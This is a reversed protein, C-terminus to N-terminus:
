RMVADPDTVAARWVPVLTAATYPLVTFLLLTALHLGDVQPVLEFRPYLVAWGKLVPAFLPSGLHFVHGYAALYGIVFASLSVLGGEWLKMTLVDGTEWGVAKLIGIERREEASLGSAKDWALIAFALVAGVLTLLMIGERWTFVSDYTRLIEDRLIPRADPLAAVVKQAVTRTERPNRVTMVADTYVGEPLAFFRRYDAEGVLMLDASVLQSASPLVGAITFSFLSGDAGRLALVDGVGAGRAAAIGAGIRISGPAPPDAPPVMVTYNAAVTPDFHYGWLRGSVERAGRIAQLKALSTVPLLDHRGAVMRQVVVEPSNRLVTAAERRLADTFLMVSALLFVVAAYVTLLGVTKAKRRLMSALSYDILSRQRELWGSV